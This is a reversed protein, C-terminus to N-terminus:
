QFHGHDIMILSPQILFLFFITQQWIKSQHALQTRVYWWVAPIYVLLECVIVTSRMFVRSEPTEIGRSTDLAFWSPDFWSGIYGCLWSVYASLPPYDLGWHDLKYFYWLRPPLHLTIEMWHRQAEYDGFTPPTAEGSYPGLSVTWRLLLGICLTVLWTTNWNTMELLFSIWTYALSQKSSSHVSEKSRKVRQRTM